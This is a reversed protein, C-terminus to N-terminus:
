STLGISKHFPYPGYVKDGKVELGMMPPSVEELKKLKQLNVLNPISQKIFHRKLRSM